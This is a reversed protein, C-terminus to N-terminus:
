RKWVEEGIRAIVWALQRSLLQRDEADYPHELRRALEERILTFDEESPPANGPVQWYDLARWAAELRRPGMEQRAREVEAPTEGAQM